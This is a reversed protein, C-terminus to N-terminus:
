LGKDVKFVSRMSVSDPYTTETHVMSVMLLYVIEQAMVIAIYILDFDSRMKVEVKTGLM